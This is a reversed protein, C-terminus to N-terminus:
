SCGLQFGSGVVRFGLWELREQAQRAWFNGAHCCPNLKHKGFGLVDLLCGQAALTVAVHSACKAVTHVRTIYMSFILCSHRIKVLVLVIM